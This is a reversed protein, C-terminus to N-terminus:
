TDNQLSKSYQRHRKLVVIPFCLFYLPYVRKIYPVVFSSFLLSCTFIYDRCKAPKVDKWPTLKLYKYYLRKYPIVPFNVWPKPFYVYHIIMPYKQYEYKDRWDVFSINDSHRMHVKNWKHPLSFWQSRFIKNLADQDHCFVKREQKSFELLQAESDNERWYDLNIFMVGSNFYKIDYPLSLQMKHENELLLDEVAALAHNNIDLNFISMINNAVVIDSDLYLIKSINKDMISSLLIRYYAAISPPAKKRFQVGKLKSEDVKHFVCASAYYEVVSRLKSKTDDNLDSILIHIVFKNNQNNEFLSCLMVGCHQAYNEDTSCCIHYEM